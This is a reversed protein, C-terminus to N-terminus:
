SGFLVSYYKLLWSFISQQHFYLRRRRLIEHESEQKFYLWIIFLKDVNNKKPVKVTVALWCNHVNIILSYYCSVGSYVESCQQGTLVNASMIRPLLCVPIVATHFESSNGLSNQKSKISSCHQGSTGDAANMAPRMWTKGDKEQRVEVKSAVM